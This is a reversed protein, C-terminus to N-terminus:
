RPGVSGLQSPCNGPSKPLSGDNIDALKSGVNVALDTAAWAADRALRCYDELRSLLGRDKGPFDKNHSDFTERGKQLLLGANETQM